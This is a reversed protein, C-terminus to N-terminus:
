PCGCEADTRVQEWPTYVLFRSAAWNIPQKSAPAIGSQRDGELVAESPDPRHIAFDLRSLVRSHDLFVGLGTRPPQRNIDDTWVGAFMAEYRSLCAFILSHQCSSHSDSRINWADWALSAASSPADGLVEVVASGSPLFLALDWFERTTHLANKDLADIVLVDITPLMDQLDAPRTIHIIRKPTDDTDVALERWGVVAAKNFGHECLSESSITSQWFAAANAGRGVEVECDSSWEGSGLRDLCKSTQAICPWRAVANELTESFSAIVVILPQVPDRATRAGAAARADDVIAHPSDHLRLGVPVGSHPRM